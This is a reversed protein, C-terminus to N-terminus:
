TSSSFYFAHYCRGSRGQVRSKFSDIHRRELYIKFYMLDDEKIMKLPHSWIWIQRGTLDVALVKWSNIYHLILLNKHCCKRLKYSAFLNQLSTIAPTLCNLSFLSIDMFSILSVTAISSGVSRSRLSYKPISTHRRTKWILHDCTDFSSLSLSALINMLYLQLLLILWLHYLICWDEMVLVLGIGNGADFRCQPM